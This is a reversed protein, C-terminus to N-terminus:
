GANKAGHDSESTQVFMRAKTEGSVNTAPPILRM